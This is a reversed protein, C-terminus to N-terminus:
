AGPAAAGKVLCRHKGGVGPSGPEPERPTLHGPELARETFTPPGTGDGAQHRTAGVDPGTTRGCGVALAAAGTLTLLARRATRAPSRTTLM